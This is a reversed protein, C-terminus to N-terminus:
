IKLDSSDNSKKPMFFVRMKPFICARLDGVVVMLENNLKFKLPVRLPFCQVTRERLQAHLGRV